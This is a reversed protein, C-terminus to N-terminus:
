RSLKKNSGFIKKSKKTAYFQMIHDKVEACVNDLPRFADIRKFNVMREGKNLFAERCMQLYELTTEGKRNYLVEPSADLFIVMNPKPFLHNLLWGHIRYTLREKRIHPDTNGPVHDFIFHRDYIIIYGRLQYSWSILQRFWEEALRNLLRVTAFVKGRKDHTWWEEPQQIIANVSKLKGSKKKSKKKLYRRMFQILRSTPLAYNSSEYNRGM